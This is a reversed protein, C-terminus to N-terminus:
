DGSQSFCFDSIAQSAPLLGRAPDCPPPLIKFTARDICDGDEVAYNIYSEAYVAGTLHNHLDGGKPMRDLFGM